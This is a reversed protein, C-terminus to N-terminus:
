CLLSTLLLISRLELFSVKLNAKITPVLITYDAMAQEATLYRIKGQDFSSNGYPLSVGYYRHEAFIILANFEEALEFLFGTNNWFMFIDGENGAYFFVPGDGKWYDYSILYRQQYTDAKVDFTYHDVVQEFYLEEYSVSPSDRAPRHVNPHVMTRPDRFRAFPPYRRSGKGVCPSPALVLVAVAVLLALAVSRYM